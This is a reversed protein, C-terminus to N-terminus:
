MGTLKQLRMDLIAKAQKESLSFTEMLRNKAEEAQKSGRIIKIVEDINKLAIMLGELIHMKDKAKILLFNTRRTIIEIRYEIFHEMM